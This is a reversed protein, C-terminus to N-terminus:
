HPVPLIWRKPAFGDEEKALDVDPDVLRASARGNLVVFVDAHVAVDNGFRREVRALHHAFALIMDPQTAMAKQQSQTLHDRLRVQRRVGTVRDVTTLEVAGMKEMLMVNWGFRYGQEHWLVDGGYLRARIPLAMQVLAYLGLAVLPAPRITHRTTDVTAPRARRLVRRLWRADLFLLSAAIMFYPFMGINFLRATLLHFVVVTAYAFPKSKKWLLWGVITLDYAAGAWSMAFATRPDRLLPGILGLDANAALWIKMPEALFLWDHRLKAAGASVYVVAIQFRFLWLVWAPITARDRLRVDSGPVVALLGTLLTVLWYHNLYNTLDIFHAYTFLVCVVGAALRARIGAALAASAIAVLAYVAYMGAAPLPRLVDEFPWPPFFFRPVVFAEHVYGKALLRITGAFLLLGFASRFVALAAGDVPRELVARLRSWWTM